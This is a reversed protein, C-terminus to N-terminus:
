ETSIKEGQAAIFHPTVVFGATDYDPEVASSYLAIYLCEKRESAAKARIEYKAAFVDWPELANERERLPVGLIWNRRSLIAVHHSPYMQRLAALSEPFIWWSKLHDIALSSPHIIKQCREAFSELSPDWRYFIRGKAFVKKILRKTQWAEPIAKHGLDTSSLGLQQLFMKPGKLDLRDVVGPGWCYRWQPEDRVQLYFKISSEWHEVLDRETNLFLFDFEGWTKCGPGGRNEERVPVRCRVNERAFRFSLINELYKEFVLGLRGTHMAALEIAMEAALRSRDLPNPVLARTSQTTLYEFESPHCVLGPLQVDSSFEAVRAAQLYSDEGFFVPSDLIWDLEREIQNQM